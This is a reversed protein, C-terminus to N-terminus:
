EADPNDQTFTMAVNFWVQNAARGTARIPTSRTISGPNVNCGKYTNGNAVIEVPKTTFATCDAQYLGEADDKSDGMYRVVTRINRSIQLDRILWQGAVGPSKFRFQGNHPAGADFDIAQRGSTLSIGSYTIVNAGSPQITFSLSM